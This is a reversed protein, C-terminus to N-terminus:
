HRCECWKYGNIRNAESSNVQKKIDEVHQLAIKLASIANYVDTKDIKWYERQYTQM